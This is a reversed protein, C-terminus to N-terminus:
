QQRLARAEERRGKSALYQARRQVTYYAPNEKRKDGRTHAPILTQEVWKDFRDLYINALIPSVVGGQPAGSLTRNFRWEELYGAKLLEGILRLFRGDHIKEALIGLLVEHDLSDFYQAIDGEIF